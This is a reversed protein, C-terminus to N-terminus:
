GSVHVVRGCAVADSALVARDPHDHDVVLVDHAGAELRDEVGLGVDLHDALGGVPEVGISSTWRRRGSTTSISM